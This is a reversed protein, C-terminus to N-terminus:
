HTATRYYRVPYRPANLDTFIILGDAGATLTALTTWSIPLSLSTTAQILYSFGPIGAFVITVTGDGHVTISVINPSPNGADPQLVVEVVNTSTAGYIDAVTYSFQDTVNGNAAPPSYFVFHSNTSITGGNTSVAGVAVLSIADGDADTANALLNSMAIILGLNPPRSFLALSAVPPTNILQTLTNTSGIFNANGAYDAAVAHYGHSLSSTGGSNALGAVLTVPGGFLAGDIQFQVTGGPVTTSPALASLTATFTVPVGPRAPNSSSALAITSSASNVTLATSPNNAPLL